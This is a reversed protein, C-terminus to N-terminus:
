SFTTFIPLLHSRLPSRRVFKYFSQGQKLSVILFSSFHLFNWLHRLINSFLSFLKLPRQFLIHFTTFIFNPYTKNHKRLTCTRALTFIHVCMCASCIHTCMDVNQHEHAHTRPISFTTKPKFDKSCLACIGAREHVTYADKLSSNFTRM